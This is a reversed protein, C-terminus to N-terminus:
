VADQEGKSRLQEIVMDEVDELKVERVIKKEFTFNQWGIHYDNFTIEEPSVVGLVTWYKAFIVQKILDRIENHDLTIQPM